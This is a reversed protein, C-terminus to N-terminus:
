IEFKPSVKIGGKDGGHVILMNAYASLYMEEKLGKRVDKRQKWWLKMGESMKSMTEKTHPIGKNPTDHTRIRQM